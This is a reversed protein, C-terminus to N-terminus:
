EQTHTVVKRIIIEVSGGTTASDDWSEGTAVSGCSHIWYDNGLSLNAFLKNIISNLLRGNKETDINAGPGAYDTHCRLTFMMLWMGTTGASSIAEPQYEVAELQISVANLQLKATTHRQYLYSFTPDYGTAMSTKLANLETYLADKAGEIFTDSNPYIEAM